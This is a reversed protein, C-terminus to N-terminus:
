TLPLTFSVTTGPLPQDVIWIKGGHAEVLGKCIALGLGAGRSYHDNPREIQRFAEFVKIRHEPPIGPGLDSVSIHLDSTSVIAEITIQSQPPAYKTANAVLNGLVQAIRQPDAMVLPLGSPINIVLHHYLAILKLQTIAIQLIDDMQCLQKRVRLQGATIRSLDLLQEVLDTLKNTEENIIELFDRQSETDWTVDTSLLTSAFGKISTLPTRLEHSIMALFQLKLDNAQEAERRAAEAERYLRAHQVAFAARHAVESMLDLDGEIYSRGSDVMGLSIAGLSQEGILLPMILLSKGGSAKMLALHESNQAAAEYYTDTLQTVLRPTKQIISQRTSSAKPDPPFRRALERLADERAPDTAAVAVRTLSGNSTILDIVCNDAMQPVLIHALNELTTDYDLSSALITSVQTLFQLKQNAAQAAVRAEQEQHLLQLREQETQQRETIDRFVLIVGAIMGDHTRIPAGSDDIPIAQGDKAILLTHNALGVITGERLVKDVPSEVRQRSAENIINFVEPLPKGVAESQQWQTLAEAVPNMFTILGYPDTAIVADGISALTVQLRERQERADRYLRANDVAQAIRLALEEMLVVDDSTYAPKSSRRVVTLLGILTERVRLPVIIESAADINQMLALHDADQAFSEFVSRSITEYFVSKGAAIAPMDLLLLPDSRAELQRVWTEVIPEVAVVAVRQLKQDEQLVDISYIDALEPLILARLNNFTADYDLSSSLLQSAHSLFVLRQNAKEAANRSQEAVGYHLENQQRETTQSWNNVGLILEQTKRYLELYPWIRARLREPKIPKVLYDVMGIPYQNFFEPLNFDPPVLLLCPIARGREPQIILAATELDSIGQVDFLAAAFDRETVQLLAEQESNAQLVNEGLPDLFSTLSNLNEAQDGVLLINIKEM